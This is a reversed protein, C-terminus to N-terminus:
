CMWSLILGSVSLNPYGTSCPQIEAGPRSSGHGRIFVAGGEGGGFSGIPNHRSIVVGPVRRLASTLDQANLDKIQQETVVTVQSGYRNVKNGEIVAPATVIVEDLQYIEKEDKEDEAWGNASFAIFFVMLGFAITNRLFYPM